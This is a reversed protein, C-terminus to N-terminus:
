FNRPDGYGGVIFCGWVGGGEAGWNEMEQHPSTGSKMEKRHRHSSRVPQALINTRRKTLHPKQREGRVSESDPRPNIATLMQINIWHKVARISRAVTCRAAPTLSTLPRLQPNWRRNRPMGGAHQQQQLYRATMLWPIMCISSALSTPM